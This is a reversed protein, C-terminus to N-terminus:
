QEAHTPVPHRVGYGVWERCLPYLTLIPGFVPNSHKCGQCERAKLLIVQGEMDPCQVDGSLHGTFVVSIVCHAELCHAGSILGLNSKESLPWLSSKLWGVPPFAPPGSVQGRAPLLPNDTGGWPSCCYITGTLM